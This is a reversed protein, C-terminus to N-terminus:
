GRAIRVVVKGIRRVFMMNVAGALKHARTCMYGHDYKAGDCTGLQVSQDIRGWSLLCM